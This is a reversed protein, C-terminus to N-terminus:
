LIVRAPKFPIEIEKTSNISWNLIKDVDQETISVNDCNRITSEL